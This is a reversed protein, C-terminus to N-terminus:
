MGEWAKVSSTLNTIGLETELHEEVKRMVPLTAEVWEQPPKRNIRILTQSYFVTGKYDVLFQLNAHINKGDSYCYNHIIAPRQIGKLTLPYGGKDLIYEVTSIEPISYLLSEVQERTPCKDLTARRTIGYFTDCGALLFLAVISFAIKMIKNMGMREHCGVVEQLM